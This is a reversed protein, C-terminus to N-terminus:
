EFLPIVEYGYRPAIKNVKKMSRGYGLAKLAMGLTVDSVNTMGSKIKNARRLDQLIEIPQKHVSEEGIEPIRYNEKILKCAQTEILYKANYSRFEEFDEMDWEYNFDANKFLVYAEAWLQDVDIEKSYGQNIQELEVVAYRRYGMQPALFGGLEKTKNSSFAGNGIRQICQTFTNSMTLETSSLVKKLTEASSKTIGVFEDFNVIFNKTFAQSINFFREDKDSKIYYAKLPKPTLFELLYTKGIGEDAHVFGLMADNQRIGLSCAISAAMWKKLLHNLREQYYGEERDGFDRAIVYKCLKDIHSEGKWTGELGRIYDTIPNFTTIHYGSRIIKKLISDCGRIGKSEMNLSIIDLTIEQDQLEKNKSVIFSKKPDFVNIKIEYYETLFDEVLKVRDGSTATPIKTDPLKFM